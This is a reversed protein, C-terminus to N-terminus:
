REGGEGPGGGRRLAPLLAAYWAPIADYEAPAPAAPYKHGAPRDGGLFDIGPEGAHREGALFGPLAHRVVAYYGDTSRCLPVRGSHGCIPCWAFGARGHVKEDFVVYGRAGCYLCDVEGAQERTALAAARAASARTEELWERIPYGCQPCSAARDSV